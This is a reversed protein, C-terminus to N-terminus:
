TVLLFGSGDELLLAFGSELLLRDASIPTPTPTPTPTPRPHPKTPSKAGLSIAVALALMGQLFRRRTLEPV